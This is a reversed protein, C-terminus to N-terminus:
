KNYKNIWNEITESLEEIKSKHIKPVRKATLSSRNNCLIKSVKSWNIIDKAQIM